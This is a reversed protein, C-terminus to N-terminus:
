ERSGRKNMHKSSSDAGATAACCTEIVMECCKLVILFTESTKAADVGHREFHRLRTQQKRQQLYRAV